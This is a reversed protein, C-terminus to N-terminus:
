STQSRLHRLGIAQAQVDSRAPFKAAGFRRALGQRVPVASAPPVATAKTVSLAAGARPGYREMDARGFSWEMRAGSTSSCACAWGTSGPAGTGFMSFVADASM